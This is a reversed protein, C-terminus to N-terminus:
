LHYVNAAEIVWELVQNVTVRADPSLGQQGLRQQLELEITDVLQRALLRDSPSLDLQALRDKAATALAPVTVYDTDVWTKADKAFRVTQLARQTTQAQPSAEIYRLTAQQVAMKALLPASQLVTCAGLTLLILSLFVLAPLHKATDTLSFPM